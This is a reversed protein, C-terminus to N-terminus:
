DKLSPSFEIEGFSFCKMLIRILFIHYVLRVSKLHKALPEITPRAHGM